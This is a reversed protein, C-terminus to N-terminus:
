VFVIKVVLSRKPEMACALADGDVDIDETGM